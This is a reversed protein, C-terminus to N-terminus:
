NNRKNIIKTNRESIEIDRKRIETKIDQILKKVQQKLNNYRESLQINEKTGYNFPNKLRDFEKGQVVNVILNSYYYNHLKKANNNMCNAWEKSSANFKDVDESVLSMTPKLCKEQSPLPNTIFFNDIKAIEKRLFEQQNNKFNTAINEKHKEFQNFSNKLNDTSKTILYPTSISKLKIYIGFSSSEKIKTYLNPTLFFGTKLIGFYPLTNELYFVPAEKIDWYILNNTEKEVSFLGIGEINKSDIFFDDLNFKTTLFLRSFLVNYPGGIKGVKSLYEERLDDKLALTKDASYSQRYEVKWEIEATALKSKAELSAGRYDNPDRIITKWAEDVFNNFQDKLSYTKKNNKPAKYELCIESNKYKDKFCFEKYAGESINLDFVYSYFITNKIIRNSDNIFEEKTKYNKLYETKNEEWAKDRTIIANKIYTLFEKLFTRDEEDLNIDEFNPISNDEKLLKETLIAFAIYRKHKKLLYKQQEKTYNNEELSLLNIKDFLALKELAAQNNKSAAKQYWLYAEEENNLSYYTEGLEFMSRSFGNNASKLFWDISENINKSIGNGGSKNLMGIYYMAENDNKEAAKKFWNIAEQYNKDVGLGETYLTGISFWADVNKLDAAKLYWQMAKQYDKDVGHGYKYLKGIRSMAKDNNKEAAKKYWYLAKSYDRKLNDGSEYKFGVQYMAVEDGSNAKETLNRISNEQSITKECLFLLSIITLLTSINKNNFKM